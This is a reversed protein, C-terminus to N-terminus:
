LTHIPALSSYASFPATASPTHVDRLVSPKRQQLLGISAPVFVSTPAVLLEEGLGCELGGVTEAVCVTAVWSRLSEALFVAVANAPPLVKCGRRGSWLERM